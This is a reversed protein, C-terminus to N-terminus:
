RDRGRDRFRGRDQLYDSAKKPEDDHRSAEEKAARLKERLRDDASTTGSPPAASPALSREEGRVPRLGDDRRPDAGPRAPVGDAGPRGQGKADLGGPLEHLPDGRVRDSGAVAAGAGDTYVDDRGPTTPSASRRGAAKQRLDDAVWRLWDIAPDYCLKLYDAVIGAVISLPPKRGPPDGAREQPGQVFESAARREEIRGMQRALRDLPDLRKEEAWQAQVYGVYDAFGYKAALAPKAEAWAGFSREASERQKDTLAALGGEAMIWPEATRAAFLTV